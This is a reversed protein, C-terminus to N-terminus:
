VAAGDSRATWCVRGVREDRWAWVSECVMDVATTVGEFCIM